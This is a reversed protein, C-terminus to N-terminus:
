VDCKEFMVSNFQGEVEEFFYYSYTQGVDCTKVTVIQDGIITKARERQEDYGNQGTFRMKTGKPYFGMAILQQVSWLPVLENDASRKLYAADFGAAELEEIETM